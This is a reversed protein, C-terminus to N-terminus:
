RESPLFSVRAPHSVAERLCGTNCAQEGRHEAMATGGRARAIVARRPPAPQGGARACVGHLRAPGCALPAVRPRAARCAVGGPV